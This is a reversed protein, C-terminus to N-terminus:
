VALTGLLLEQQDQEAREIATTQSDRTFRRYTQALAEPDVSCRIMQDEQEDLVASIADLILMQRQRNGHKTKCELGRSCEVTEGRQLRCIIQRRETKFSQLELISYWTARRESETYDARHLTPKVVNISASFSVASGSTSNSHESRDTESKSQRTLAEQLNLIAVQSTNM